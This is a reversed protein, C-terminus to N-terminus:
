TKAEWVRKDFGVKGGHLSNPGNNVPVQFAKDDIKFQGKAIRNAVRGTLAGFFPSDAVYKDLTGFGCVVDNIKGARDPVSIQTIVGGYNTVHISAGTKNILRYLSVAQGDPAKGWDHTMIPANMGKQDKAAPTSDDRKAGSSNDKQTCGGTTLGVLAIAIASRSWCPFNRTGRM